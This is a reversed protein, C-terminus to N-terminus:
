GRTSRVGGSGMKATEWCGWVMLWPAGLVGLGGVLSSGAGGSECSPMRSWGSWGSHTGLVGFSDGSPVLPGRVGKQTDQCGWAGGQENGAM